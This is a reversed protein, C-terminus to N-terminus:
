NNPQRKMSDSTAQRLLALAEEDNGSKLLEIFKASNPDEPNAKLKSYGKKDPLIQKKLQKFDNYVYGEVDGMTVDTNIEGELTQLTRPEDFAVANVIAKPDKHVMFGSWNVMDSDSIKEGDSHVYSKNLIKTNKANAVVAVNDVQGNEDANQKAWDQDIYPDNADLKEYKMGVSDRDINFYQGKDWVNKIGLHYENNKDPYLEINLGDRKGIRIMEEVTRANTFIPVAKYTNKEIFEKDDEPINQCFSIGLGKINDAPKPAFIESPKSFLVEEKNTKDLPCKKKLEDIQSRLRDLAINYYGWDTADRNQPPNMLIDNLRKELEQIQKKTDINSVGQSSNTKVNSDGRNKPSVGKFMITPNVSSFNVM